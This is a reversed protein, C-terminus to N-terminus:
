EPYAQLKVPFIDRRSIKQSKYIISGPLYRFSQYFPNDALIQTRSVIYGIIKDLLYLGRCILKFCNILGYFFIILTKPVATLISLIQRNNLKFLHNDGM